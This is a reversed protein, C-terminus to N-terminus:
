KVSKLNIASAVRLDARAAPPRAAVRLPSDRGPQGVGGLRPAAVGRRPHPAVVPQRLLAGPAPQDIVAAIAQRPIRRRAVLRNILAGALARRAM